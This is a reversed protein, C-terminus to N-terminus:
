NRMFAQIMGIFRKHKSNKSELTVFDKDFIDGNDYMVLASVNNNGPLTYVCIPLTMDDAIRYTLPTLSELQLKEILAYMNKEPQEGAGVMVPYLALILAENDMALSQDAFTVFKMSKTSTDFGYPISSDFSFTKLEDVSPCETLSNKGAFALNFSLLFTACLATKRLFIYM